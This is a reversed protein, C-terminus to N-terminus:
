SRGAASQSERASLHTQAIQLAGEIDVTTPNAGGLVQRATRGADQLTTVAERVDDLTADPDNNLARAYNWRMRLTLENNEGLVRRAVPITKRLLPKAEAYRQLSLLSFAYNNAALLTNLHEAGHHKLWISYVDRRVVMAEELRRLGYYSCALNSQVSLICHEDDGLRQRTALEAERVTLADEDRDAESLGNGLVSM